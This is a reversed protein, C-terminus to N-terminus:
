QSRKFIVLLSFINNVCFISVTLPFQVDMYNDSIKISLIPKSLIRNRVYKSSFGRCQHKLFLRSVTNVKSACYPTFMCAIFGNLIGIFLLLVRPDQSIINWSSMCLSASFCLILTGVQVIGPWFVSRYYNNYMRELIQLVTYTNIVEHIKAVNTTRTSEM